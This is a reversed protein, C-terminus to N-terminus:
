TSKGKKRGNKAELSKLRDEVDNLRIESVGERTDLEDTKTAARM